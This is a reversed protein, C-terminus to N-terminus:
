KLLERIEDISMNTHDYVLLVFDATTRRRGNRIRSLTGQRIGFLQALEKDNAGWGQAILYDLLKHAAGYPRGIVEGRTEM